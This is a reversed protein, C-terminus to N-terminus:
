RTRSLDIQRGFGEREPKAEIAQAAADFSQRDRQEAESIAIDASLVVLSRVGTFITMMRLVLLCLFATITGNLAYVIQFTYVESSWPAAIKVLISWASLKGVVLLVCTVFSVWFLAAWVKLQHLLADRALIIRRSSLGGARLVTATLIATPLVGAMLLTVLAVLEATAADYFSRDLFLAGIVGAVAAAALKTYHQKLQKLRDLIGSHKM